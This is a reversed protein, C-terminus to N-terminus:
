KKRVNSIIDLQESIGSSWFKSETSIISVTTKGFIIFSVEQNSIKFSTKIVWLSEPPSGLKYKKLRSPSIM